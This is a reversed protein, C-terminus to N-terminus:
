QINVSYQKFTITSTGDVRTVEPKLVDGKVASVPVVMSTNLVSAGVELEAIIDDPLVLGNKVWRVHFVRSGGTSIASFALTIVGSFEVEGDYRLECNADNILTFREINPGATVGPPDFDIDNFTGNIPVSTANTNNKIFASAIVKSPPIFNNGISVTKLSKQTLGGPAFVTGNIGGEQQCGRFNLSDMGSQIEPKIDFVTENSGISVTPTIFNISGSTSAGQVTFHVCGVANNGFVFVLNIEFFFLNEAILGQDYNLISGFHINFGGGSVGGKVTGMALFNRFGPADSAQFSWGSGGTTSDVEWMNGNPAEFRTLGQLEFDGKADLDRFCADTGTYKYVARNVSTWTARKGEGPWALPFPLDLDNVLRYQRDELVITLVGDKLQPTPLDIESSVEIVPDVRVNRASGGGSINGPSFPAQLALFKKKGIVKKEGDIFVSLEGTKDDLKMDTVSAGDKGKPGRQGQPGREGREGNKVQTRVRRAVTELDPGDTGNKPKPIKALVIAAVDSVNVTPADRGNSPKPMIALVDAVIAKPDPSKGDKPAPIQPLVAAVIEKVDPSKGDKGDRGKIAVPKVKELRGLRAALERTDGILQKIGAAIKDDM